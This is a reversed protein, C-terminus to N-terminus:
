TWAIERLFAKLLLYGRGIDDPKSYELPSHSIGGVSPVFIMNTKIKQALMEADHGAGSHMKRYSLHLSKATEELLKLGDEDMQAPDDPAAFELTYRFRDKQQQLNKIRTQAEQLIAPSTSRIDFSLSVSGAIVNSKNPFVQIEGFTCTVAEGYTMAWQNMETIFQAARTVPDKRLHMPTTGAHNQHGEITIKGILLGVISTVLGVQEGSQELVGGQEIHLEIFREVEQMQPSKQARKGSFGAHRIAETLTIGNADREQLIDDSLQGVLYRSGLYGSLFRSGEEEGFAVVEVNKKPKGLEAYLSGAAAIACIIGLAGDYKGGNKVTDRHSGTLVIRDQEGEIKGFLNGIDDYFVELDKERMWQELLKLAKQDEETYTARWHLSGMKGTEHLCDLANEIWALEENYM